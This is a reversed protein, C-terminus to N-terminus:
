SDFPPRVNYAKTTTEVELFPRRNVLSSPVRCTGPIPSGAPHSTIVLVKGHNFYTLIVMSNLETFWRNLWRNKVIPWPFVMAFHSHWLWITKCTSQSGNSKGQMWKISFSRLTSIQDVAIWVRPTMDSVPSTLVQLVARWSHILNANGLLDWCGPQPSHQTSLQYPGAGTRPKDETSKPVHYKTSVSLHLAVLPQIAVHWQWKKNQIIKFLQFVPISSCKSRRSEPSTHLKKEFISLLKRSAKLATPANLANLTHLPSNM